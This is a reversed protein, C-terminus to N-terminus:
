KEIGETRSYATRKGSRVLASSQVWSLRVQRSDRQSSSSSSASKHTPTSSKHVPTSSREEMSSARGQHGRSHHHSMDVFAARERETDKKRENDRETWSEERERRVASLCCSWLFSGKFPSPLVWLKEGSVWLSLFICQIVAHICSIVVKTELFSDTGSLSYKFWQRIDVWIDSKHLPTHTQENVSNLLSFARFLLRHM